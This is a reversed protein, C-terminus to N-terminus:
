EFRRPTRNEPSAQVAGFEYTFGIQVYVPGRTMGIPL